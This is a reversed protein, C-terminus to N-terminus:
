TPHPRSRRSLPSRPELRALATLPHRADAFEESSTIQLSWTGPESRSIAPVAVVVCYNISLIVPIGVVVWGGDPALRCRYRVFLDGVSRTLPWTRAELTQRCISRHDRHHSAVSLRFSLALLSSPRSWVGAWGPWWGSRGLVAEKGPVDHVGFLFV